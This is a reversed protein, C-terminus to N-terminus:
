DEGAAAGRGFLTVQISDGECDFHVRMVPLIDDGAVEQDVDAGVQPIGLKCPEPLLSKISGGVMNALEGITDNIETEGVESDDMGFMLCAARRGFPPSFDLVVVGEWTGSITVCSSLKEGWALDERPECVSLSSGLMSDWVATAIECVAEEEVPQM